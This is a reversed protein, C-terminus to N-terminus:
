MLKDILFESRRGFLFFFLSSCCLCFFSVRVHIFATAIIVGSGFYKAFEYVATPLVILKSRRTLIPFLTGFLSTALIIFIAAVRLGLRGSFQLQSCSPHLEAQSRGHRHEMPQFHQKPTLVSPRTSSPISFTPSISTRQLLYSSPLYSLHFIGTHHVQASVENSSGVSTPHIWTQFSVHYWTASTILRLFSNFCYISRIACVSLILFFFLLIFFLVSFDSIPFTLTPITEQIPYRVANSKIPPLHHRITQPQCSESSTFHRPLNHNVKFNPPHHFQSSRSIIIIIILHHHHSIVKLLLIIQNLFSSRHVVVTKLPPWFFLRILNWLTPSRYIYIYLQNIQSCWFIIHVASLCVLLDSTPFSIELFPYLKM